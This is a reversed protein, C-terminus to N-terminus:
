KMEIVTHGRVDAVDKAPCDSRITVSKRSKTHSYGLSYMMCSVVFTMLHLDGYKCACYMMYHCYTSIDFSRQRKVM